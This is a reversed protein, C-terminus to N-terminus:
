LRAQKASLYAFFMRQSRTRILFITKKRRFGFPIPPRKKDGKPLAALPLLMLACLVTFANFIINKM